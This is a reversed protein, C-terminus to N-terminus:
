GLPFEPFGTSGPAIEYKAFLAVPVGDERIYFATNEDVATFGGDEPAFYKQPEEDIQRQIAATSIEAWNEGLLDELTIERNETLNLNYCTREEMASVWGEAMTVVFSVETDSRFKIEYDVIVDMQRGAWQEETGGTAFFAERYAEWDQQAKALHQDVKEQIAKNVTEALASEADVEPVTVSYNIDDETKDYSVFTLVRFLGGIVPVEAAAQAVTPSVNLGAILLMLCAAASFWRRRLRQRRQRASRGQRIGEEVRSSLEEPIPTSEYARRAEELKKM